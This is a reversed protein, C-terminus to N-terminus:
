LGLDYLVVHGTRFNSVFAMRSKEGEGSSGQSAAMWERRFGELLQQIQQLYDRENLPVSQVVKRWSEPDSLRAGRIMELVEDRTEVAAIPASGYERLLSQARSQVAGVINWKNSKKSRHQAVLVQVNQNHRKSSSSNSAESSHLAQRRQYKSKNEAADRERLESLLHPVLNEAKVDADERTATTRVRLDPRGGAVADPKITVIWSHNDDRHKSMIEELTRANSALEASIDNAWLETLIKLGATRLM